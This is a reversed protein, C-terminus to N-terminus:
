ALEIKEKEFARYIALNIEERRNMYITYDASNVYFVTEFNLSSGGYDRFHCRDFSTNETGDIIEKIIGPIKELKETKAGPMVGLTFVVRRREMKKFNQVRAATLEKNSIILEEGQLTQLRTSKLGIKRVIGTDSGVAISDGEKFPKDFYISFSSFVDSLINQLALAIALGGIGLSAIIPAINVGLNELILLVGIIWLVTKAIGRLARIFSPSYRKEEEPSGKELYKLTLHDILKEAARATEYTIAIIFLAAIIQKALPAVTITKVSFFLAILFYTGPKLGSLINVLTGVPDTKTRSSSEKLRALIILQFIKLATILAILILLAILYDYASNQDVQIVKLNEILTNM